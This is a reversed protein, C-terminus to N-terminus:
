LTKPCSCEKGLVSKVAAILRQNESHLRVAIRYWGCTLGFDNECRRISIGHKILATDLGPSGYFLLYNAASPCVWFGLSEMQQQLWQRETHILARSEELFRLEKLAAIGAAQALVSVNWPQVARSMRTLLSRDSCLCYGLRVGALGYSKTFAKLILLHPHRCLLGSMSKGGDSLDLFCEDLFLRTHNVECLSLIEELLSPNMLRGTPNNPNCLFVVDPKQQNLFSLFDRNLDFNGGQHLLFRETQCGVHELALSYESFSPAPIVARRPRDATCYTYILEAAGNGCLIYENPIHEFDSIARVLERCYPDPYRRVDPLAKEIEELVGRPTGLPNENVSYDLLVTKGYIDGGHPNVTQYLM